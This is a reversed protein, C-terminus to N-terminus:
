RTKSTQLEERTRFGRWVAWVLLAAAVGLADALLDGWSADRGVQGQILEVAGGIAVAAIALVLRPIRRFLVGLSWLMLGFAAFHAAKDWVRSAEEINQYPGVLLALLVAMVVLGAIRLFLRM